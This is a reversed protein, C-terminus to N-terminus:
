RPGAFLSGFVITECGVFYDSGAGGVCLDYGPGGELIDNGNGGYLEDHGDEGWLHDNAGGGTLYSDSDHGHAIDVHPHGTYVIFCCGGRVDASAKAASILVAVTCAVMCVLYVATKTNM